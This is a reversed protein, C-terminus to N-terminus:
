DNSNRTRLKGMELMSSMGINDVPAQYTLSIFALLAM